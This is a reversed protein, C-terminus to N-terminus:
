LFRGELSAFRPHIPLQIHDHDLRRILSSAPATPPPMLLADTQRADESPTKMHQSM